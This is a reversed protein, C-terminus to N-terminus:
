NQEGLEQVVELLSDFHITSREDIYGVRGESSFHAPSHGLLQGRIDNIGDQGDAWWWRSFTISETNERRAHRVRQLRQRGIAPVWQDECPQSLSSAVGSLM